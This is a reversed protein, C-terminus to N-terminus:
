SLQVLSTSVQVVTERVGDGISSIQTQVNWCEAASYQGSLATSLSEKSTIRNGVQDAWSDVQEQTTDDPITRITVTISGDYNGLLTVNETFDSFRVVGFPKEGAESTGAAHFTIGTIDGLDEALLRACEQENMKALGKRKEKYSESVM